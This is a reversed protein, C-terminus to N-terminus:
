IAPIIEPVTTEVAAKPQNTSRWGNWQWTAQAQALAHIKMELHTQTQLEYPAFLNIM